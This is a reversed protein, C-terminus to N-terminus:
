FPALGSLNINEDKHVYKDAARLLATILLAQVSTAPIDTLLATLWTIVASIAGFFAIRGLELASKKLAEWNIKKILTQM